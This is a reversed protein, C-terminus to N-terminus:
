SLLRARLRDTLDPAAGAGSLWGAVGGPHQEVHDLVSTLAHPAVSLLVPDDPLYLGARELRPWLLPLNDRTRRYDALVDARRVGIARLLIGVVIGTRDKGAACHVLTPAPGNAVTTVIEAIRAAADVALQVYPPELDRVRTHRLSADPALALGLPMRHVRTRAGELPHAADREQTSRLDIVTRAPWSPVADPPMDGPLPAESRYLVGPRVTRGDDTRLGAVDRFNVPAPRAPAALIDDM